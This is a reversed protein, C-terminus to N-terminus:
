YISKWPARRKTYYDALMERFTRVALRACHHHDRPLGGLADEIHAGELEYAEFLERGLVLETLVSACAHTYDCGHVLFTVTNIKEEAIYVFMELSDGCVGKIHAYGDPCPLAGCNKKNEVHRAILENM